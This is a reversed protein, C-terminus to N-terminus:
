MMIVVEMEVCMYSHLVGRKVSLYNFGTINYSAGLIIFTSDSSILLYKSKLNYREIYRTETTTTM